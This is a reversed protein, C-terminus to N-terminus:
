AFAAGRHLGDGLDLIVELSDEAEFLFLSFDGRVGRGFYQGVLRRATQKRTMTKM